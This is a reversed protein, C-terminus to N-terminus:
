YAVAVDFVPQTSHYDQKRKEVLIFTEMPGKGRVEIQGRSILSFKDRILNYTDKSVQIKNSLGHHEMRAAVNVTDGWLDYVKKKIGIVGAVAPGSHLGIRVKIDHGSVEKFKQVEEMFRIAVEAAVEAHNEQPNPVGSAAMYADGMTKIKEMGYEDIIRDFASFIVNLLDVVELPTLNSAIETFGVMDAFLVTVEDFSDTIMPSEHKLRMAIEEPLLQSVLEESKIKEDELSSQLAGLTENKNSFYYFIIFSFFALAMFNAQAILISSNLQLSFQSDILILSVLLVVFTILWIFAKKYNQLLISAFPAAIAWLVPSYEGNYNLIHVLFPTTLTILIFFTVHIGYDKHYLYIGINIINILVYAFLVTASQPNPEIFIYFLVTIFSIGAAFYSMLIFMLSKQRTDSNSKPKLGAFDNKAKSNAEEKSM